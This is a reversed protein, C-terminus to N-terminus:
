RNAGHPRVNTTTHRVILGKRHRRGTTKNKSPAAKKNARQSRPVAGLTYTGPEFKGGRDFVIIEARLAQSTLYRVWVHGMKLYTRGLHVRADTCETITRTCCKAAACASPAKVKGNNADRQSIHILIPSTADVIPVGNITNRKSM